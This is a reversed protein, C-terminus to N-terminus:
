NAGKTFVANIKLIYFFVLIYTYSREIRGRRREERNMGRMKRRERRVVSKFHWIVLGIKPSM